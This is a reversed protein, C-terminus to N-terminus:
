GWSGDHNQISLLWAVGKEASAISPKTVEQAPDEAPSSSVLLLALALLTLPILRMRM